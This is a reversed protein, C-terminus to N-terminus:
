LIYLIVLECQSNIWTNCRSACVLFLFAVGGVWSGMVSALQCRLYVGLTAVVGLKNKPNPTTTRPSTSLRKPALPLRSWDPAALVRFGQFVMTKKKKLFITTQSHLHQNEMSNLLSIM